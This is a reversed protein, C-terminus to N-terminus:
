KMELEYPNLRANGKSNVPLCVASHTSGDELSPATSVTTKSNEEDFQQFDCQVHLRVVHCVEVFLFSHSRANSGSGPQKM